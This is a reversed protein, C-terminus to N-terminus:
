MGLKTVVIFGNCAGHSILLPTNMVLAFTVYYQRKRYAKQGLIFLHNSVQHVQQIEIQRHRRSRSLVTQSDPVDATLSSEESPEATVSSCDRLDGISQCQVPNCARIDCPIDMLLDSLGWDAGLHQKTVSLNDHQRCDRSTQAQELETKNNQRHLKLSDNNIVTSKINSSDNTIFGLVTTPDISDGHTNEPQIPTNTLRCSPRFIHHTPVDHLSVSSIDSRVSCIDSRVSCGSGSYLNAESHDPSLDRSTASDSHSRSPKRESNSLYGRESSIGSSSSDDLDLSDFAKNTEKLGCGHSDATGPQESTLLLHLQQLKSTHKM